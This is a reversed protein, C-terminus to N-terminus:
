EEPMIEVSHPIELGVRAGLELSDAATAPESQNRGASHQERGLTAGTAGTGVRDLRADAVRGFFGRPTSDPRSLDRTVRDRLAPRRCPTREQIWKAIAIPAGAEPVAVHRISNLSRTGQGEPRFDKGIGSARADLIPLDASLAVSLAARGVYGLRRM